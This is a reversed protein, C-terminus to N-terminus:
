TGQGTAGINGARDDVVVPMSFYVADFVRREGWPERIGGPLRGHEIFGLRRYVAEAPTAARCTTELIEIGRSAAWARAADVLRRAIGQGQYPVSVVLSFLGARHAYLPSQTDRKVVANGVIDGAVEAVFQAGTGRAFARRNAAIQERVAAVTALPLCNAQLAPADGPEVPRIAISASPM